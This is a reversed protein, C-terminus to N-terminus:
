HCHHHQKENKSSHQHTEKHDHCCEHEHHTHEEGYHHCCEKNHTEKHQCCEHEHEHPM